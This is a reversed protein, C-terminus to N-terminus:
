ESFAQILHASKLSNFYIKSCGLLVRHSKQLTYMSLDRFGGMKIKNQLYGLLITDVTGRQSVTAVM